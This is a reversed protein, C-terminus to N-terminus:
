KKFSNLHYYSCYSKVLCENCKPKPRCTERGLYSLAMGIEGWYKKSFHEMLKKEIKIADNSNSTVGIRNAVRIVHLDTIIGEAPINAARLIINASKRHIGKLAILGSMTLPIANNKKIKKAIEILWDVKTTYNRVKSIYPIIKDKTAKSLSEMNPFAKFFFPALTNIKKDSDQASLIVMVLLQYLNSYALAHKRNQYKLIIPMLKDDWNSM